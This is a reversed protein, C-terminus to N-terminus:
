SALCITNPEDGPQKFSSAHMQRLVAPFKHPKPARLSEFERGSPEYAGVSSNTKKNILFNSPGGEGM